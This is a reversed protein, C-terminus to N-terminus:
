EEYLDEYREEWDVGMYEYVRYKGVQTLFSFDNDAPENLFTKQGDVVLYRTYNYTCKEALAAFDLTNELMLEYFGSHGGWNPDLQERGYPMRINVDYQRITTLMEPPVAVYVIEEEYDELYDAIEVVEMPIQLLNDSTEFQENSTYVFRGGLLLIFTALLLGTGRHENILETGVYALGLGVPVIWWMRWYTTEDVYTVYLHYFWPFVIVLILGVTGYLLITRNSRNKERLAIYVLGVLFLVMLIGAGTYASYYALIESLNALFNDM